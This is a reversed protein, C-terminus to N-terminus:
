VASLSSILLCHLCFGDNHLSVIEMWWDRKIDSLGFIMILMQNEIDSDWKSFACLYSTECDYLVCIFDAEIMICM